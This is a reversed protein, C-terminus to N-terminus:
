QQPTGDPSEEDYWEAHWEEDLAFAEAEGMLQYDQEKEIPIRLIYGIVRDKPSVWM